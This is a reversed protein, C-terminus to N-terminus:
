KGHRRAAEKEQILQLATTSVYISTLNDTRRWSASNWEVVIPAAEDVGEIVPIEWHTPNWGIYHWTLSGDMPNMEAWRVTGTWDVVAVYYEGWSAAIVNDWMKSITYEHGNIVLTNWDVWEAGKIGDLNPVPTTEWWEKLEPEPDPVPITEGGDDMEYNTAIVAVGANRQVAVQDNTVTADYVYVNSEAPIQVTVKVNWLVLTENVCDAFFGYHLDFTVASNDSMLSNIFKTNDLWDQTYNEVWQKWSATPNVWLLKEKIIKKMANLQQADKWLLEELFHKKVILSGEGEIKPLESINGSGIMKPTSVFKDEIDGNNWYASVDGIANKYLNWSATQLNNIQSLASERVSTILPKVNNFWPENNYSAYEKDLRWLYSDTRANAIERVPTLALFLRREYTTVNYRSWQNDNEPIWFDKKMKLWEVHPIVEGGLVRNMWWAVAKAKASNESLWKERLYKKFYDQVRNSLGNEWESLNLQKDRTQSVRSMSAYIFRIDDVTMEWPLQNKLQPTLLNLANNIFDAETVDGPNTFYWSVYNNFEVYSKHHNNRFDVLLDWADPKEFFALVEERTNWWLAFNEATMSQMNYNDLRETGFATTISADTWKLENNELIIQKSNLASQDGLILVREMTWQRRIKWLSINANAPLRIEGDVIKIHPALEPNCVTKIWSQTEFVSKSLSIYQSRENFLLYDRSWLLDNLIRLRGAVTDANENIVQYNEKDNLWIRAKELMAENEVYHENEYWTVAFSWTIFKGTLIKSLSIWVWIWLQSIHVWEDVIRTIEENRFNQAIESALDSSLKKIIEAKLQANDAFRSKLSEKYSNYTNFMWVATKYITDWKSDPFVKQINKTLTQLTLDQGNEPTFLNSFLTTLQDRLNETQKEVWAMKDKRWYWQLSASIADIPSNLDFWAWFSGVAGLYNSSRGDLSHQQRSANTQTEVWVHTSVGIMWPNFPSWWTAAWYFLRSRDSLVQQWGTSLGLWLSFWSKDTYLGVSATLHDLVGATATKISENLKDHWLAAALWWWFQPDEWDLTSWSLVAWLSSVFLWRRRNAFEPSWLLANINDDSLKWLMEDFKNKQDTKLWKYWETEKLAVMTERANKISIREKNECNEIYERLEPNTEVYEDYYKNIIEEKKSERSYAELNQDVYSAGRRLMWLGDDPESAMKNRFALLAVPNNKFAEFLGKSTKDKVEFRSLWELSKIINEINTVVASEWARSIADEYMSVIQGWFVTWEDLWERKKNSLLSVNTVVWDRNKDSLLVKILNKYDTDSLNEPIQKMVDRAQAVEAVSVGAIRADRVTEFGNKKWGLNAEAETAYQILKRMAKVESKKIKGWEPKNRWKKAIYWYNVMAEELKVDDEFIPKLDELHASIIAMASWENLDKLINKLKRDAIERTAKRESREEPAEIDSVDWFGENLLSVDQYHSGDTNALLRQKNYRMKQIWRDKNSNSIVNWKITISEWIPLRKLITEIYSFWSTAMNLNDVNEALVVALNIADQYKWERFFENVRDWISSLVDQSLWSLNNDVMDILTLVESQEDKLNDNVKALQFARSIDDRADPNNEYVQQLIKPDFNKLVNTVWANLNDRLKRKDWWETGFLTNLEWMAEKVEDSDVSELLKIKDVVNIGDIREKSLELLKIMERRKDSPLEKYIAKLQADEKNKLFNWVRNVEEERLEAKELPRISTLLNKVETAGSSLNEASKWLWWM